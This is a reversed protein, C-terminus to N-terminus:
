PKGERAALLVRKRRGVLNTLHIHTPELARSERYCSSPLPERKARALWDNEARLVRVERELTALRGELERERRRAEQSVERLHRALDPAHM